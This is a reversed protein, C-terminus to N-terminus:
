FHRYTDLTPPEPEGAVQDFLSPSAVISDPVLANSMIVISLDRRTGFSLSVLSM